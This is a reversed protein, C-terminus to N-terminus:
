KKEEVLKKVTKLYQKTVYDANEDVFSDKLIEKSVQDWSFSVIVDRPIILNAQEEPVGNEILRPYINHVKNRIESFLRKVKSVGAITPYVFPTKRVPIGVFNFVENWYEYVFEPAEIHFELKGNEEKLGVWGFDFLSVGTFGDRDEKLDWPTKRIRLEPPFENLENVVEGNDIQDVYVPVNFEKCENVIKLVWENFCSRRFEGSEAGIVVWDIKGTSLWQSISVEELLPEMCVFRHKVRSTNVLDEIRYATANNEVSVGVWLCDLNGEKIEDPLSEEGFYDEMRGSRKTSVFYRNEPYQLMKGFVNDLIECGYDEHFVDGLSGVVYNIGSGLDKEMLNKNFTPYCDRGQKELNKLAICNDCGPSCKTCGQLVNWSKDWWKM